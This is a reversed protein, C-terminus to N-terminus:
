VPSVGPEDVNTCHMYLVSVNVKLQFFALRCDLCAFQLSFQSNFSRLIRLSPEVVTEYLSVELYLVDQSWSM